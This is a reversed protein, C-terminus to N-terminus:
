SGANVTRPASNAKDGARDNADARSPERSPDGKPLRLTFTTGVGTETHFAISGGHEDVIRKVIALGLGTGNKKGSTVFNNFLRDRIDDPVGGGTDTFTFVVEGTPEDELVQVRFTGGDPMAERANRALNFVVRRIKTEDMWIQGRYGQEIELAVKRGAFEEGLLEATEDLFKNLQVKRILLNREGRAYALIERTMQDLMNIQKRISAAYDEREATDEEVAMLQAYGSIISMPTRFDHLVGSLLQGVTALRNANLETEREHARQIAKSAQGAILTLLKQDDATFSRPSGTKNYMALAGVSVGKIVLPVAAVSHLPRRLEGRVVEALASGDLPAQAEMDDMLVTRGGRAVSGLVGEGAAIRVRQAEDHRARCLTVVEQPGESLAGAGVEAPVAEVAHRVVTMLLADLDDTRTLEQEIRFLVDLEDIKARLRAQTDLLEINKGVADLYLRSNEISMAAQAAVAELLREDEVSFYGGDVAPPREGQPEGRKNLVQVVGIIRRQYNMLPQCLMSRTRYGTAQDYTADFQPHKYADKLNLGRGTRAVFGAIGEGVRVRLEDEVSGEPLKAWLENRNRDLIFLTCRDADLLRAVHFVIRDLLPELNLTSALAVGIEQFARLQREQVAERRAAEKLRAEVEGLRQEIENM